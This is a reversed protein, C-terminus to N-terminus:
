AGRREIAPKRVGLCRAPSRHSEVAGDLEPSSRRRRAISIESKRICRTVAKARTGIVLHPARAISAQFAPCGAHNLNHIVAADSNNDERQRQPFRVTGRILRAQVFM